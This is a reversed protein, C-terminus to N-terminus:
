SLAKWFTNSQVTRKSVCGETRAMATARPPAIGWSDLVDSAACGYSDGKKRYIRLFSSLYGNRSRINKQLFRKYDRTPNRLRKGEFLFFRNGYSFTNFPAFIGAFTSASLHVPQSDQKSAQGLSAIEMCSPFATISGSFHTSQPTQTSSHGTSAILMSYTNRPGM